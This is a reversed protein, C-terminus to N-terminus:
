ATHSQVSVVFDDPFVLENSFILYL